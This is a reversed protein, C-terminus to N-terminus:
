FIAHAAIVPLVDSLALGQRVLILVIDDLTAHQLQFGGEVLARQDVQDVLLLAVNVKITRINHESPLLFELQRALARVLRTSLLALVVEINNSYRGSECPSENFQVDKVPTLGVCAQINHLLEYEPQPRRIEFVYDEVAELVQFVFVEELTLEDQLALADTINADGVLFRHAFGGTLVRVVCFIGIQLARDDLFYNCVVLDPTVCQPFRLEIGLLEHNLDVQIEHSGNSSSEVQYRILRHLHEKLLDDFLNASNFVLGENHVIDIQRHLGLLHSDIVEKFDIM